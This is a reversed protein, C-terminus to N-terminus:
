AITIKTPRKYSGKSQDDQNPIVQAVFSITKGKLEDYDRKVFKDMAGTVNGFLTCGDFDIALRPEHYNSYSNYHLFVSTITGKVEIRGTPLKNTNVPPTTKLLGMHKSIASDIAKFTTKFYIYCEEDEGWAKGHSITVSPCETMLKRMANVTAMNSKVRNTYTIGKYSDIRALEREYTLPYPIFQGKAYIEGDVVYGDIPAHLRGSIGQTPLIDNIGAVEEIMRDYVAAQRAELSAVAKKMEIIFQNVSEM